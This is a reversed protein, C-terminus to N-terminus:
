RDGGILGFTIAHLWSPTGTGEPVYLTGDSQLRHYKPFNLKLVALFRDATEQEGVRHYCESSIALADDLHKSTPFNRLVYDARKIAAICAGRRLYYWGSAIEQEALMERLYLMRLRSDPAFRSQPYRALLTAFDGYADRMSSLDRLADNTPSRREFIGSQMWYNALGKVYLAYDGQPHAPNQRLFRKATSEAGPYDYARMQAYMMDFQSQEAYRGFPFRTDLEQLQDQATQFNGRELSKKAEAYIENENKEKDKTACGAVVLLTLLFSLLLGRRSMPSVPFQSPFPRASLALIAAPWKVM